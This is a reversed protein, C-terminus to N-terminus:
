GQRAVSTGAREEIQSIAKQAKIRLPTYYIVPVERHPDDFSMGKWEELKSRLAPIAAPSGGIGLVTLAGLVLQHDEDRDLIAPLREALEPDGLGNLIYPVEDKRESKLGDYEEWIKGAVEDKPGFKALAHAMAGALYFVLCERMKAEEKVTATILVRGL